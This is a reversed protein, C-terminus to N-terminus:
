KKEAYKIQGKTKTGGLDLVEEEDPDKDEHPDAKGYEEPMVLKDTPEWTIEGKKAAEIRRLRGEEGARGLVGAILATSRPSDLTLQLELNDEQIMGIM